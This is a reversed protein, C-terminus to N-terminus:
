TDSAMRAFARTTTTSFRPCRGPRAACQAVYHTRARRSHARRSQQDARVSLHLHRLGPYKEYGHGIVQEGLNGTFESIMEAVQQAPGPKDPSLTLRVVVFFAILAAVVILEVTFTNNFPAAPNAPHIGLMQMISSVIGGFLQNLLRTLAYPEPM